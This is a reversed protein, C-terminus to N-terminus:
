KFTVGITDVNQGQKCQVCFLWDGDQLLALLLVPRKRYRDDSDKFKELLMCLAVNM